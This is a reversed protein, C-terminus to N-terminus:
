RRLKTKKSVTASNGAADTLTSALTATRSQGRKLSKLLRKLAKRGSKSFRLKLTNSGAKM